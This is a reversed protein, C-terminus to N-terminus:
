PEEAKGAAEELRVDDVWLTGRCRNFAIGCYIPVRDGTNFRVEIKQWEGDLAYNALGQSAFPAHVATSVLISIGGTKVPNRVVDATRFYGSYVYDTNPKLNGARERPEQWTYTYQGGEVHDIRLSSNGNRKVNADIVPRTRPGEHQGGVNVSIWKAPRGDANAQEFGGSSLLNTRGNVEEPAAPLAKPQVAPAELRAAAEARQKTADLLAKQRAVLEELRATAEAPQEMAAFLAKQQVGLEDLRATAAALQKTAQEHERALDQYRRADATTQQALEDGSRALAAARTEVRALRVVACVGLVVGVLGLVLAAWSTLGRGRHATGSADSGSM